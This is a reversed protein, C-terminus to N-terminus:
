EPALAMTYTRVTLQLKDDDDDDDGWTTAM